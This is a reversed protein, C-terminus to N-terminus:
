TKEQQQRPGWPCAAPSSLRAGPRANGPDTGWSNAPAPGPASASAQPSRFVSRPSQSRSLLLARLRPHGWGPSGRPVLQQRGGAPAATSPALPGSCEGAGLSAGRAAAGVRPRAPQSGSPSRNVSARPGSASSVFALFCPKRPAGALAPRGEPTPARPGM